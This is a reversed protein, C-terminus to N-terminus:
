SFISLLGTLLQTGDVVGMVGLGMFRTKDHQKCTSLDTRCQSLNEIETRRGVHGVVHLDIGLGEHNLRYFPQLGSLGFYWDREPNTASVAFSVRLRDVRRFLPWDVGITPAFELAGKAESTTRSVEFVTDLAIQSGDSRLRTVSATDKDILLTERSSTWAYALGVNLRPARRAYARFTQSKSPDGVLSARLHQEGLGAGLRWRTEAVCAGHEARWDGVVSDPSSSGIGIRNFVVMARACTAPDTPGSIRVGVHDPLQREEYWYQGDGSRRELALNLSAARPRILIERHVVATGVDIQVDLSVPERGLFGRWVTEAEGTASTVARLTLAENTGPKRWAFTVPHGDLKGGPNDLKVVLIERPADSRVTVSCPDSASAPENPQVCRIVQASATRSVLGVCACAVLVLLDRKM